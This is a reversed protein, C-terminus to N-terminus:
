PPYKGKGLSAWATLSGSFGDLLGTLATLTRQRQEERRGRANQHTRCSPPSQASSAPASKTQEIMKLFRKRHPKKTVGYAELDEDDVDLLIQGDIAEKIVIEKYPEFAEGISAVCEGVEEKSWKGVDEATPAVADAAASAGAGM